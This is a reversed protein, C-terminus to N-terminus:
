FIAIPNIPSGTGNVIRLPGMTLMFEWRGHRECAAALDELNANDLLWLGMAVIGVQHMPLRVTPYNSPQVDNTGDGGLMAIQREHLWPLALAQLGPRVDFSVPGLDLRRKYWGTRVLLVDGPEVKVNCAKEAAELDEPFVPTGPELWDVGKTRPIDLLVGRSVVGNALLDISEKTAGESATVLDSSFGNYMKGEWFVHGVSDLHTVTASHFAVGFYDLAAQIETKPNAAGAFQEGSKIIFHTPAPHLPPHSEPTVQTSIVRSCSVTAGDGVLRAAQVRKEPTILNLTGMQDDKGWRGWNSYTQFYNLVEAESPVKRAM